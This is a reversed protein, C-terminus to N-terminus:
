DNPDELYLEDAVGDEPLYDTVEVRDGVKVAAFFADATVSGVNDIFYQTRASVTYFSNNVTISAGSSIANVVGEFEFEGADGRDDSSGDDNDNDDDSLRLTRVTFGQAAESWALTLDYEVGGQRIDELTIVGTQRNIYSDARSLDFPQSGSVFGPFSVVEFNATAERIDGNEDYARVTMTHQGASLEGYNFTQGFGSSRAGPVSPFAQEVDGRNGGYPIEYAYQGDVFLEVRDIGADAIAWGRLNSVGTASGGNVPEELNIRFEAAVPAAVLGALVAPLAFAFQRM